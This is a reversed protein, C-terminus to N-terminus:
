VNRTGARVGVSGVLRGETESDSEDDGDYESFSVDTNQRLNFNGGPHVRSSRRLKFHSGHSSASSYQQAKNAIKFTQTVSGWMFM